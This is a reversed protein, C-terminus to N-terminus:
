NDLGEVEAMVKRAYAAIDDCIEKDYLKYFNEIPKVGMIIDFLDNDFMKLLNNYLRELKENSYKGKVEDDFFRKLLDENELIARRAAQYYVKKLLVEDQM